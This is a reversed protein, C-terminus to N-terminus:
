LGGSTDWESAVAGSVALNAPDPTDADGGKIPVGLAWREIRKEAAVLMDALSKSQAGVRGALKGAALEAATMRVIPSDVAVPVTHAPLMNDIVRSAWAIAEPMPFQEIVLVRVGDTTFDIAAGGETAALSFTSDTLPVVYYRTGEVLPAPLSGGADARLTVPDDAEFGHQDLTIADTSALVRPSLRAPNPVAGRPIGLGYVDKATCYDAAM